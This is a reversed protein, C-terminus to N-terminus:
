ENVSSYRTKQLFFISNENGDLNLVVLLPILFHPKPFTLFSQLSAASSVRPEQSISLHNETIQRTEQFALCYLQPTTKMVKSGRSFVTSKASTLQLWLRFPLPTGLFSSYDNEEFVCDLTIGKLVICVHIWTYSMHTFTHVHLYTPISVHRSSATNSSVTTCSNLHHHPQSASLLRTSLLQREAEMWGASHFSRRECHLQDGSVGGPSAKPSVSPASYTAESIVM